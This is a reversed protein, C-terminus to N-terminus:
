AIIDEPELLQKLKKMGAKEIQQLRQPTIGYDPALENFFPKDDALHRQTIIKRQRPSLAALADNVFSSMRADNEAAILAQEPNLDGSALEYTVTPTDASADPELRDRIAKVTSETVDLTQALMAMAGAPLAGGHAQELRNLEARLRFFVRKNDPSNPITIISRNRVIFALMNGRIYHVAYGSLRAGKAADFHNIAEVLGLNGECILDEFPLGYRGLKKAERIVLGLHARALKDLAANDRGKQLRAFLAQEDELTLLTAAPAAPRSYKRDM